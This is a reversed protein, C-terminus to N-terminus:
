EAGDAYIKVRGWRSIKVQARGELIANCWKETSQITELKKQRRHSFNIEDESARIGRIKERILKKTLTEENRTEM